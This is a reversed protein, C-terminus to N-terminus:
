FIMPGIFAYLLVFAWAFAAGIWNARLAEKTNDCRATIMQGIFNSTPYVSSTLRTAALISVAFVGMPLGAKIAMEGFMEAVIQIELVAATEIGFGGVVASVLALATAGGSQALGSLLNGLATFGEGANVLDMMVTFNLLLVLTSAQSGIGKSLMKVGEDVPFGAILIIIGALLLMVTLAYSTSQKMLIGYTILVVFSILFIITNRKEKPTPTISDISSIDSSLEYHETGETLRQARNCGIWAGTLWFLSFPIVAYLMLQRASEEAYSLGTVQMTILTVGTLPGVILGIEGSVKFLVAVVTPTIGLAALIPILIPSIIANGGALTGLLGCVLISSLILVIKGKARTNIGIRKVIWYVLTHTIRAETMLVGLGTGFMILLGIVTTSSSIAATYANTLSVLDQGTLFFGVIIGLFMGLYNGKGLLAFVIFIILPLLALLSPSSILAWNGLEM